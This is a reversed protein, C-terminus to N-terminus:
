RKAQAGVQLEAIRGGAWAAPLAATVLGWLYWAPGLHKQIGVLAGGTSLVVGIAGLVLAHQLPRRPALRATVYCGAVSFLIRYALIFAVLGQSGYLPLAAGRALVGASELAYDVAYSLVFIVVLGAVISVVSRATHPGTETKKYNKM